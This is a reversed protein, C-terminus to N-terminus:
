VVKVDLAEIVQRMYGSRNWHERVQTQGDDNTARVMLRHVGSNAPTWDLKWRRWSYRGLSPDLKATEWTQGADTSVEVLRIGAGGDTALGEVPYTAGAKLTEGQEPRIIVSHVAMRNIPVRDTALAGPTEEGRPNNPILYAKSMWFGDFRSPLVQINHLAKIWYTAYWGPTVLRLPFGNLRPLSEGNMEYAVMVEGDTAREIDLSKVFAPTAPNPASDLGQFTVDMAGARLKAANLLDRLRVGTWRANGMAGHGWQGGLIHPEFLGRSNGSCQNLAVYSVPEFKNRLDDVSFELETAVHGGVRLRFTNLDVEAPINELHWRVYFASNPTLDERFFRFPTELQPPRDTLLYLPDKTPFQVIRRGTEVPSDESTSLSCGALLASGM